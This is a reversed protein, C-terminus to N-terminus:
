ARRWRLARQATARGYWAMAGGAINAAGTVLDVLEDQLKADLDIGALTAIGALLAIISGWVTKSQWWLKTNNM